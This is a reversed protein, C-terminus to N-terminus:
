RLEVKQEAQWFCSTTQLNIDDIIENQNLSKKIYGLILDTNAQSLNKVIM